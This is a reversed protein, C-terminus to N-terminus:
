ARVKALHKKCLVAKMEEDNRLPAYCETCTYRPCGAEYWEAIADWMQALRAPDPRNLQQATPAWEGSVQTVNGGHMTVLLASRKEQTSM